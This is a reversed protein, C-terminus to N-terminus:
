CENKREMADMITVAFDYMVLNFVNTKMISIEKIEDRTLRKFECQDVYQSGEGLVYDGSEKNM